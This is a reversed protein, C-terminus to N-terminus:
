IEVKISQVDLSDLKGTHVNKHPANLTFEVLEPADTPDRALAFITNNADEALVRVSALQM